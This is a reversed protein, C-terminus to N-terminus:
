EIFSLAASERITNSTKEEEVMEFRCRAFKKKRFLMSGEPDKGPSEFPGSRFLEFGEPDKETNKIAYNM